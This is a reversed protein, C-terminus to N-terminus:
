SASRFLDLSEHGLSKTRVRRGAAEHDGRLSESEAQRAWEGMAASASGHQGNAKGRENCCAIFFAAPDAPMETETQVIAALVAVDTYQKIMRGLLSRRKEGIIALGRDWLDKIPDFPKQAAQPATDGSPSVSPHTPYNNPPDPPSSSPAPPDSHQLMAAADGTEKNKWRKAAKESANIIRKKKYEIETECRKNDLRGDSLTLKGLQILAKLQRKLANGHDRCALRLVEMEVPGGNCYILACATIYLGRTANDLQRTGHLWDQPMFAIWYTM